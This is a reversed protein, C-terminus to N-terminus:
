VILTALHLWHLLPFIFWILLLLFWWNSLNRKLNHLKLSLLARGYLTLNLAFTTHSPSFLHHFFFDVIYLQLITTPLDLTPTTYHAAQPLHLTYSTCYIYTYPTPHQCGLTTPPSSSLLSLLLSSGQHQIPPTSHPATYHLTSPANLLVGWWRWRQCALLTHFDLTVACLPVKHWTQM